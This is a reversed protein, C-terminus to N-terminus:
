GRLLFGAHLAFCSHATSVLSDGPVACVPSLFLLSRASEGQRHLLRRRRPLGPSSGQTPVIGQLLAHRGVGTNKGPSEWSCLLRTPQQGHPPLSGSVVSHSLVCARTEKLFPWDTKLLPQVM